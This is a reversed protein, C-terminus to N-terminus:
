NGNVWYLTGSVCFVSNRALKLWMLKQTTLLALSSAHEIINFNGNYINGYTEIQLLHSM